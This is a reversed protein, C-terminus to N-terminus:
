CGDDQHYTPAPAGSPDEQPPAPTSKVRIFMMSDVRSYQERMVRQIDAEKLGDCDYVRGARGQRLAETTQKFLRRLEIDRLDKAQMGSSLSVTGVAVAAIVNVHEM